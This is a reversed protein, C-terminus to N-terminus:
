IIFQSKKYSLVHRFRDVCVYTLLCTKLPGRKFGSFSNFCFYHTINSLVTEPGTDTAMAFVSDEM